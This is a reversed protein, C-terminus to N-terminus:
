GKKYWVGHPMPRYGLVQLARRLRTDSTQISTLLKLTDAEPDLGHQQLITESLMREHEKDHNRFEINTYQTSARNVTQTDLRPSPRSRSGSEARFDEMAFVSSMMRAEGKPIWDWM